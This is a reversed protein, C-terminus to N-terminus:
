NLELLTANEFFSRDIKKGGVTGTDFDQAIKWTGDVKRLVVHFQGYYTDRQSEGRTVLVRYYGTEYGVYETHQRSEFAFDIMINTGNGPKQWNEISAFYRDATMIGNDTVRLADDTHLAIFAESDRAEYSTKFAQWVEKNIAEEASNEQSYVQPHILILALIFLWNVSSFLKM